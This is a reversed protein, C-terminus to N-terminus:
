RYGSTIIYIVYVRWLMHVILNCKKYYKFNYSKEGPSTVPCSVAAEGVQGPSVKVKLHVTVPSLFPIVMQLTSPFLSHTRACLLAPPERVQPGPLAKVAVDPVPNPVALAVEKEDISLPVAVEASSSVSTSHKPGPRSLSALM